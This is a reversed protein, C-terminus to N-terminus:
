MLDELERVMDNIIRVGGKWFQLSDLSVGFPKMLEDPSKSSGLSLLERYKPIFADGEKQFQAFLSLTLLEGFAYAYVYFPTHIFHPIYGWWYSYNETLKVSDKFMPIQTKMWAENFQVVSLEGQKRQAHIVREFQFMSVQRFVTAIINEIKSSLLAIKEKRSLTRKNKFSQFLLMETFVSATEAITLPTDFNLYGSKRMFCAHLGHGLEHALTFVDRQSGLYNIFLVPHTDATVFSCFAGGRKGPRNEADVWNKDFFEKGYSVFEKGLVKLSDLVLSVAEQYPYSRQVSSIPAYRDYDYLTKVNLLKKKLDYYKQVTGYSSTVANVLANVAEKSTDNALHRSSEPEKFKRYRDDISKSLMITNFVYAMRQAQSKLGQTMSGAAEKRVSSKPSYLGHLVESESVQKKNFNFKQSGWEEDFLREFASRGTLSADSLINEERENLRHVHQQAVRKAYHAFRTGRLARHLSPNRNLGEGLSLEFFTLMKYVETAREKAFQYTGGRKQDHSTEAFRLSAFIAPKDIEQMLNEYESIAKKINQITFKKNKYKKVFGQVSKESKTFSTKVYVEDKKGRSLFTLDWTPLKKNKKMHPM